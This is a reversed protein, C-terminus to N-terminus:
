SNINDNVLDRIMEKVFRDKNMPINWVKAVKMVDSKCKLKLGMLKFIINEVIVRFLMDISREKLEVRRINREKLYDIKIAKWVKSASFEKEKGKKNFWVSRDEVDNNLTPVPVDIVTDYETMWDIPWCWNNNEILDIVKANIDLGALYIVRHDILKSLPGRPHWKDFWVSCTKGNGIKVNVFERIKDRLSMLHKWSWSMGKNLEIDWLNKGKLKHIKVWKVWITDKDIIINWLHKAMLSVNWEHMSKLGLGGQSKPRCVNDWKVSVLSRTGNKNSWLFNSLINDIDDAFSLCINKWSNVKNQVVEILVRCDNKTIRKAVLPVGLYRIPLVGESFSMVLKIEDKVNSPINCFFANSKSMSPYLGSSMSFEDLGKRLISAFIMDGHWLMPLDDVFYLSSIKLKQCSSHFEFSRDRRIQRNIMLNLVEMVLTFLYPTIPDGQRLGRKAKFFGMLRVMLAFLSHLMVTDYAKHIDVKFACNRVEIDWNYGKMFEQALLVNDSILRGSIFSSQNADNELRNKIFHYGLISTSQGSHQLPTAHSHSHIVQSRGGVGPLVVINQHLKFGYDESTTDEDWIVKAVVLLYRWDYLRGRSFM